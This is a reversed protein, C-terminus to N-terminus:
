ASLADELFSVLDVLQFPKRIFGKVPLRSFSAEVTERSYASTLIVKLDPHVHRAEEFVERSSGEPLTVDLLMVDIQSRHARVLDLASSGDIAEVVCFGQKRLMRSVAVRLMGEDEVILVTGSRSPQYDNRSVRPAANKLPATERVCPLFIDFRTGLGLASTLRITGGHDRVIGQVVALGLGRGAFKTTFFPDFIKAQLDETMGCGTDSVELNVYHGEPLDPPIDPGSNRPQVVPSTTVKIEGGKEDIAESANMILNMVIQRIQSARGRVAPLDRHLDTKLVAHKSISVQLLELMEEVLQSLNLPEIPDVKDQGSYIMLQRVIESGRSSAKSIRQIGDIPAEGEALQTLALEAEALIGGLLNNFDHAIGNALVGLSELKQRALAEEQARKIDTIDICSGIYGAFGGGPAFRPVGTCLVWRYEGDARRLRFVSRFEQRGDISSSYENLFRERDDDHVAAIWGDGIKEQMAHGTFDLCCKNFFTARKDPGAVWIMVPATDAMNRFREESERQAQDAYKRESIDMNVGLMRIAKGNSDRIVKGKAFLWHVTGDPWVVRFETDYRAAGELSRSLEEQVRPRDEPHILKLWEEHSLTLEGAALGYLRGYERSCHKRNSVIDWDWTAIGAAEQAIELRQQSVRLAEGAQRFGTIDRALGVIRYIRGAANRVPVLNTHFYRSGVPLVLEEEYSILAGAELCRRYNTIVGSAVPEDVVEEIFKGLVEGSSFGVAKEEAPNFGAFKFRGDPTVDLLFICESTVDFVEKYRQRSEGLAAEAQKRETINRAITSSGVVVGASDKLPSSTVSVEVRRGDKSLGTLEYHKPHAGSQIEKANQRFEQFSEPPFLLSLPKGLIEETAYGFVKEAGPNWSVITGDLSAGFIADESSEVLSALRSRQEQAQKRDTIDLDVGAVRRPHGVNDLFVTGKRLLWHVSGDPWVVRFETDWIHTRRLTEEFLARVRAQDDAHILRVWQESTRPRHDPSVGYLEAYGGSVSLRDSRLDCDWVALHAAGEAFALRREASHLAELGKSLLGAAIQAVMLFVLFTVVKLPDSIRFSLIPPIFFYALSAASIGSIIVSSLFGGAKTQFIVVLVYLLAVTASNIHLKYSFLTVLGLTLGGWALPSSFRLAQITRQRMFVCRSPLYPGAQASRRREM